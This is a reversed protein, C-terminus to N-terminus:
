KKDNERREKLRDDITQINPDDADYDFDDDDVIKNSALFDAGKWWLEDLIKEEKICNELDQELAKKTLNRLQFVGLHAFRYRKAFHGKPFLEDFNELEWKRDKILQELEDLRDKLKMRDTGYEKILKEEMTEKKKVEEKIVEEINEKKDEEEEEESDSEDDVFNKKRIDIPYVSNDYVIPEDVYSDFYIRLPRDMFELGEADPDACVWGYICGYVLNNTQNCFQVINHVDIEFDRQSVWGFPSNWEFTSCSINEIKSHPNFHLYKLQIDCNEIDKVLGIMTNLPFIFSAEVNETM